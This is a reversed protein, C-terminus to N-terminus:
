GNWLDGRQEKSWQAIQNLKHWQQQPSQNNQLNEVSEELHPWPDNFKSAKLHDTQKPYQVSPNELSLKVETEKQMWAERVLQCTTKKEIQETDYHNLVNESSSTYVNKYKDVYTAHYDRLCKKVGEFADNDVNETFDKVKFHRSESIPIFNNKIKKDNTVHEFQPTYEASPDVSKEKAVKSMIPITFIESQNSVKDKQIYEVQKKTINKEEVKKNVFKKNVFKNKEVEKKDEIKVSYSQPQEKNERSSSKLSLSFIETNEKSTRDINHNLGGERLTAAGVPDGMNVSNEFRFEDGEIIEDVSVNGVVVNDTIKDDVTSSLGHPAEEVVDPNSEVTNNEKPIEIKSNWSQRVCETFSMKTQRVKQKSQNNMRKQRRLIESWNDSTMKKNGSVTETVPDITGTMAPEQGGFLELWHDPPRGESWQRRQTRQHSLIRESWSMLRRALWTMISDWITMVRQM